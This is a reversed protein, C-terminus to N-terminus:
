SRLAVHSASVPTTPLGPKVSAVEGETMVNLAPIAASNDAVSTVTKAVAGNALTGGVVTANEAATARCM